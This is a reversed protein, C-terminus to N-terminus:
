GFRAPGRLVSRYVAITNLATRDWSFEKARARGRQVLTGRLAEDSWLRALGISLAEVDEPDAYLAADGGVEPLSSVNSALVPVGSAFSELIPLGFGESTSVYVVMTAGHYVTKLESEQLPPDLRVDDILQAGAIASRLADSGTGVGALWLYPGTGTIWAQRARFRAFAQVLRKLNKHPRDVGVYLAYSRRGWGAESVHTLGTQSHGTGKRAWYGADVGLPVATVKQASEPYQAKVLDATASSIALVATSRRMTRRILYGAAVRKASSFRSFYHPDTIPNLDYATVVAPVNVLPLDLFPYHYIDTRLRRLVFPIAFWQWISAIRADCYHVRAGANELTFPIPTRRMISLLLVDVSIDSAAAPIRQALEIVYRGAGTMRPLIIRGDLLLKVSGSCENTSGDAV